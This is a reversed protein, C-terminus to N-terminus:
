VSIIGPWFDAEPFDRYCDSDGGLRSTCHLYRAVTLSRSLTVLPTPAACANQSCRLLKAGIVRLADSKTPYQAVTGVSTSKRYRCGEPTTEYFRFQWVDESFRNSRKTLSVNQYRHQMVPIKEMRIQAGHKPVFSASDAQQLHWWRPRSNDPFERSAIVRIRCHNRFCEKPTAACNARTINALM